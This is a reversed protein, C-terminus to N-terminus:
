RPSPPTPDGADRAATATPRREITVSAVEAAARLVHVAAFGEDAFLRRGRTADAGDADAADPGYADSGDADAADAAEAAALRELHAAVVDADVVRGLRGANRAHVVAEPLALVIAVAPHGAARARALLARRAHREVNTADVVVLRGAALRRAVERHLIAFAPRTANQNAEDGTLIARFADSSLVEAPEFHRAAFTSKGAGAAGVLVVLSPDPLVITRM